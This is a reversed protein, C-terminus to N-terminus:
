INKINKKCNEKRCKEVNKESIKLIKKQLKRKSM